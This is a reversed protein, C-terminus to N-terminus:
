IKLRYLEKPNDWFWKHALDVARTETMQGEEIRKALVRSIDERAMTLHGYVKEVPTGYDGGFALIKNTPILDIAEDLAAMAFRQSIIHTWCFNLWVNSFGKGLMLTERVWPYGVHYIDFRVDPHRMIVPIMHLPHLQRFDGWYGTHVAVVLDQEGAFKITEDIIYDRLPNSDPYIPWVPVPLSKLTGSKLKKFIAAAKKRDPTGYLNSAMKLGVTGESKIKLINERRADLYEDLSNIGADLAFPPRAFDERNKIEYILPMVPTLLDTGTNTVDSRTLATRIRCAKRLIREYLGPKNGEKILESIIRYNKETIDSFGFFKECTLLVSKVYSTYRIREWYPVFTKWRKELTLERNFLNEYTKQDMGARLLDHHTYHSFLTFVDVEKGLRVREPPLHEHCDIIEMRSFAEFLSKKVGTFKMRKM